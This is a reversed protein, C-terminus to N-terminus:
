GEYLPDLRGADRRGRASGGEIGGNVNAPPEALWGPEFGAAVWEKFKLTMRIVSM